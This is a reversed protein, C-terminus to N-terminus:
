LQGTRRHMCALHNLVSNQLEILIPNLDFNTLFEECKELILIGYVAEGRNLKEVALKDLELIIKELFEIFKM